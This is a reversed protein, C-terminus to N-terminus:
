CSVGESRISGGYKETNLDALETPETPETELGETKSLSPTRDISQQCVVVRSSICTPCGNDFIQKVALYGPSTKNVPQNFKDQMFSKAVPTTDLSNDGFALFFLIFM